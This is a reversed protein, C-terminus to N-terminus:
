QDTTIERGFLTKGYPVNAPSEGNSVEGLKHVNARNERGVLESMAEGRLRERRRVETTTADKIKKEDGNVRSAGKTYYSQAFGHGLRRM